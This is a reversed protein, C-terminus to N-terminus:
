RLPNPVYAGPYTQYFDITGRTYLVGETESISLLTGRKPPYSTQSFLRIDTNTISVFDKSRVGKEELVRCFGKIETDRFKSTKHIVIRAPMQMLAKDYESPMM